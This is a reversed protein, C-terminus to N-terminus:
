AAVVAADLLERILTAMAPTSFHMAQYKARVTNLVNRYRYTYGSNPWGMLRIIEAQHYGAVILDLVREKVDLTAYLADWDVRSTAADAPDRGNDPTYESSHRRMTQRDICMGQGTRRHMHRDELLWMCSWHAINSTTAHEPAQLMVEWVISVLEATRNGFKPNHYKAYWMCVAHKACEALTHPTAGVRFQMTSLDINADTITLTNWNRPQKSTPM